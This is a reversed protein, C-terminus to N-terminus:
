IKRNEPHQFIVIMVFLWHDPNVPTTLKETELLQQLRFELTTARSWTEYKLRSCKLLEDKSVLEGVDGGAVDVKAAEVAAGRGVARGGPLVQDAFDAIDLRLLNALAQAPGSFNLVM